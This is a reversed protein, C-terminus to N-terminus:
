QALNAATDAVRLTLLFHAGGLASRGAILNGGHALAINRALYLGLGTGGSRAGTGRQFREFIAEEEGEPIGAGSDEVHIRVEDGVQEASVAFPPQGYRSANELLNRIILRLRGPDAVATLGAPVRLQIDATALNRGAAVDAIAGELMERVDIRHPDITLRGAEARAFDLLEQTLHTLRLAASAIDDGIEIAEDDGLEHVRRQLEQAGLMLGTLPSRVEHSIAAIADGRNAAVEHERALDQVAEGLRVEMSALGLRAVRESAAAQQGSHVFLLVILMLGAFSVGGAFDLILAFAVVRDRRAEVSEVEDLLRANLTAAAERFADFRLKGGGEATMEIARAQGGEAVTRILVRAWERQWTAFRAEFADIEPALEDDQLSRIRRVADAFDLGGTSYPDLFDVNSTLVYGRMGTEANVAATLAREGQLAATKADSLESSNSQNLILGFAPLAISLVAAAAAATLGWVSRM